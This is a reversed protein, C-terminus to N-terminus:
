PCFVNRPHHCVYEAVFAHDYGVRNMHSISSIAGFNTQFPEHLLGWFNLLGLRDAVAETITVKYFDAIFDDPNVENFHDLLITRGDMFVSETYLELYVDAAVGLSNYLIEGKCMERPVHRGFKYRGSKLAEIWALQFTSFKFDSM